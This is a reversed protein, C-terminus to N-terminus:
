TKQILDFVNIMNPHKEVREVLGLLMVV